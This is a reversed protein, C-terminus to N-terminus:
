PTSENKVDHSINTKVKHNINENAKQVTNESVVTNQLCNQMCKSYGHQYYRHDSKCRMNTSKVKQKYCAFTCVFDIENKM